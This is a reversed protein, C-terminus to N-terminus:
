AEFRDPSTKFMNCIMTVSLLRRRVSELTRDLIAQTTNTTDLRVSFLVASGIFRLM